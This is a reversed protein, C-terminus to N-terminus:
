ARLSAFFNIRNIKTQEPIMKYSKVFEIAADVM